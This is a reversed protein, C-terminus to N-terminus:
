EYPLGEDREISKECHDRELVNLVKCVCIGLRDGKRARKGMRSSFTEDPYGGTLTNALQDLSILVNWIYRKIM